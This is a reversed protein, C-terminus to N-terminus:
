QAVKQLRFTLIACLLEGWSSSARPLIRQMKGVISPAIKKTATMGSAAHRGRTAACTLRTFLLPFRAAPVELHPGSVKVLQTTRAYARAAKGASDLTKSRLAGNGPGLCYILSVDSNM